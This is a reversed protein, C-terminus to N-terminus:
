LTVSQGYCRTSNYKGYYLQVSLRSALSLLWQDFNTYDQPLQEAMTIAVIHLSLDVNGINGFAIMITELEQFPFVCLVLCVM